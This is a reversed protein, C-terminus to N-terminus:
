RTDGLRLGCECVADAPRIEARSVVRGCWCCWGAPRAPNGVVLQHPLVDKTVVAGASVMSWDGIEIPCVLTANAGISAGRRVATPAVEWV